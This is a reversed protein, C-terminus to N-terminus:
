GNKKKRKFAKIALIMTVIPSFKGAIDLIDSLEGKVKQYSPTQPVQPITIPPVPEPVPLSKNGKKETIHGKTPPPVYEHQIEMMKPMQSTKTPMFWFFGILVVTMLIFVIFATIRM